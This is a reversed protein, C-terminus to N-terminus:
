LKRGCDPCFGEKKEIREWKERKKCYGKINCPQSKACSLCPSSSPSCSPCKKKNEKKIEKQEEKQESTFPSDSYSSITVETRPNEKDYFVRSGDHSVIIRCNDDEIVEYHVLIDDIAEELNTLDVARKTPMYFLCKVEIPENIKKGKNPIYWAANEQFELFQKSPLPTPVHKTSVVPINGIMEVKQKERVIINQSNKKTRPILPITFRFNVM